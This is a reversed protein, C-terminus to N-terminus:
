RQEMQKTSTIAITSLTKHFKNNHSRYTFTINLNAQLTAQKQSSNESCIKPKNQHASSRKQQKSFRKEMQKTSAIAM